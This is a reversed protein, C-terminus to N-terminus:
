KAYMSYELRWMFRFFHIYQNAFSGDPPSQITFYAFGSLPTPTFMPEGFSVWTFDPMAQTVADRVEQETPASDGKPIIVTKPQGCENWVIGNYINKDNYLALFLDTAPWQGTYTKGGGYATSDTICSGILVLIGYQSSIYLRPLCMDSQSSSRPLHGDEQGLTM